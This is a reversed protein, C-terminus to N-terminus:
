RLCYVRLGAFAHCVLLATVRFRRAMSFARELIARTLPKSRCSLSPAPTSPYHMDLTVREFAFDGIVVGGSKGRGGNISRVPVFDGGRHKAEEPYGGHGLRTKPFTAADGCDHYSRHDGLSCYRFICPLWLGKLERLRQEEIDNVAKSKTGDLQCTHM